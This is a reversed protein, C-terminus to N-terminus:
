SLFKFLCMKRGNLAFELCFDIRTHCFLILGKLKEGEVLELTVMIMPILLYPTMILIKKAWNQSRLNKTLKKLSKM